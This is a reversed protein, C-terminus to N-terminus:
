TSFHVDEEKSYVLSEVIRNYIYYIIFPKHNFNHGYKVSNERTHIVVGYGLEAFAQVMVIPDSV